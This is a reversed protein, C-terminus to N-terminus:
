ETIALIRICIEEVEIKSVKLHVPLNIIHKAVYQATPCTEKQYGFKFYEDESICELAPEFWREIEVLDGLGDVVKQPDDVILPMRLVAKCDDPFYFRKGLRKIYLKTVKERYKTNHELRELQSIGIMAQVNSLKAPFTYEPFEINDYDNMFFTLNLKRLILWTYGEILKTYRNLRLFWLIYKNRLINMVIFQICIARKEKATLEVVTKYVEEIKSGILDNNTVAVGGVSTSIYKTHDTSFFAVDGITGLIRGNWKNGFTHACDEIMYIKKENCLKRIKESAHCPIGYTHQVVIAKTKDTIGAVVNEYSLNYDKETIDAYVPTAGTYMIAKPVVCCTYSQIIVEDGKGIGLAQLITYLAMRGGAFSWVHKVHLIDKIKEHYQSIYDKKDKHHVIVKICEDMSTTASTFNIMRHYKSM